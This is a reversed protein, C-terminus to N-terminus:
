PTLTEGTMRRALQGLTDVVVHRPTLRFGTESLVRAIMQISLLSHGGLDFFNDHIGVHSLHLIERWARALAVEAQSRPANAGLLNSRGLETGLALEGLRSRDIEKKRTLPLSELAMVKEPILREACRGRLHKRLAVAGPEEQGAPVVFAIPRVDPSDLSPVVLAVAAVLPHEQLLAEIRLLEPSVKAAVRFPDPLAKVDIKGNDTLPLQDLEVFWGPVMYDPLSAKLGARLEQASAKGSGDLTYFAVLHCDAPDKGRVVVVCQRIKSLRSLALQVEGLEIRYGRVKVQFDNRGIYELRGDRRLKVLDGTRYMKGTGTFPNSVFRERTLDDRGLYGDTVGAGGIWLEGISGRPVWAQRSDLVYTQTNGIPKGITVADESVRDITSWVTTETPGYANWLAGVRALLELALDRPMAEGGCMATLGRDGSWGAMLLLRWTSPTAQLFTIRQERLTRLLAAGDVVTAREAIVTTAGAVLPLWLELEAIDFSLTTVALLRDDAKMGPSQTHMTTLFNVLTRHPVQVGKPKGTSGSTYIVYALDTARRSARREGVREGGRAIRDVDFRRLDSKPAYAITSQTLLVRMGSHEIMYELRDIPYAPDLPVFAAGARWVGLLVAVMDASRELMVGVLPLPGLDVQQLTAAIEGSRDWLERYTLRETSSEVAVHDPRARVMTQVLDDVCAHSDFEMSTVNLSADMALIQDPPVLGLADIPLDPAAVVSAMLTELQQLRAHMEERDFLSQNYACELVLQGAEVVANVSVEFTEANRHNFFHHARLGQFDLAESELGPDFNFMVAILPARTKEIEYETIQLLEPITIWQHEYAGLFREMIRRAFSAFTDDAELVCRIPMVRADHGLLGSKGSTIQGAAPVGILFDRQGSIRGIFLAFASLLTVFQSAGRKAGVAKLREYVSQDVKYDERLSEYTRLAPRPHDLPLELAPVGGALASRWYAHVTERQAQERAEATRLYEVFSASPDLTTTARQGVLDSYLQPLEALIIKLSWGDVVAHHCNFVLVWDDEGRCVLFARFLPGELLDFVHNLEHRVVRKYEAERQQESRGRLNVTPLEFAIRERVLFENGDPSFRGRLAEHRHLLNLLASYLADRDLRGEFFISISHNYGRSAIPDSLSASFIERQAATSQVGIETGFLRAPDIPAPAARTQLTRNRTDALFNIRAM